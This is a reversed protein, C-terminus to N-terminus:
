LLTRKLGHFLALPCHEFALSACKEILCPADKNFIRKVLAQCEEFDSTGNMNVQCPQIFNELRALRCENEVEGFWAKALCITNKWTNGRKSAQALNFM